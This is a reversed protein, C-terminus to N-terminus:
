KTIQKSSSLNLFCQIQVVHSSYFDCDKKKMFLLRTELDDKSCQPDMTIVLIITNIVTVIIIATSLSHESCYRRLGTSVATLHEEESLVM